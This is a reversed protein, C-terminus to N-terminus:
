AAAREPMAAAHSPAPPCLVLSSGHFIAVDVPLCTRLVVADADGERGTGFAPRVGALLVEIHRELPEALVAVDVRATHRDCLFQKLSEKGGGGLVVMASWDQGVGPEIFRGKLALRGELTAGPEVPRDEPAGGRVAPHGELATGREAPHGELTVGPEVPRGELAGGCEV